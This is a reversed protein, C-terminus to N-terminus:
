RTKGKADSSVLLYLGAAGAMIWLWASTDLPEGLGKMGPQKSFGQYWAAWDKASNVVGTKIDDAIASIMQDISNSLLWFFQNAAVYGAGSTDNQSEMYWKFGNDKTEQPVDAQPIKLKQVLKERRMILAIAKDRFQKLAHWDIKVSKPVPPFRDPYRADERLSMTTNIGDSTTFIVGGDPTNSPTVAHAHLLANQRLSYLEKQIKDIAALIKSEDSDPTCPQGWGKQIVNENHGDRVVQKVKRGCEDYCFRTWRSKFKPSSDFVWSDCKVAKQPLFLLPPKEPPVAVVESPGECPQNFDPDGGTPAWSYYGEGGGYTWAQTQKRGCADYCVRHVGDTTQDCYGASRGSARSAKRIKTLGIKM